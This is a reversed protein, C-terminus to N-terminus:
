GFSAEGSNRKLTNQRILLFFLVTNRLIRSYEKGKNYLDRPNCQKLYSSYRITDIHQTPPYEDKSDLPPCVASVNLKLQDRTQHFSSRLFLTVYRLWSILPYYLFSYIYKM